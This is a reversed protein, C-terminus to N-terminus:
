ARPIFLELRVRWALSQGPRLSIMGTNRQGWIKANFPDALNFQPEVAIFQKDPPAYVQVAKIQPSLATIRMGYKAAPDTVEAVANGAANRQLDTFCDDMFLTRGLPAGGTRTFDYPTGKAAELEGTPFVDDCNNVVARQKAPLHLRIQSRDGSPFRFYPHFGIGMPLIEKGANKAKVTLDLARNKLVIRVSADTKSCWHGGFDGGHLSASVTSAAVGNHYEVHNFQSTLILGHIAHIEANPNKGQWNAPLHMEKGAIMTAITKGDASLKGRIRNPYPLLFASGMSFGKNGFPDNPHELAQKADAASPANILDVAGMGPIHARVQLLNMGRGPLVTAELFQPASGNKPEPRMLTVIPRGGISIHVAKPKMYMDTNAFSSSLWGDDSALNRSIRVVEPM